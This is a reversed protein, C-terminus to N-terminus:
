VFATAEYSIKSERGKYVFAHLHIEYIKFVCAGVILKISLWNATVEKM